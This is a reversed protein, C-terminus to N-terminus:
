FLKLLFLLVAFNTSLRCFRFFSREIDTGFSSLNKKISNLSFNSLFTCEAGEKLPFSFGINLFIPSSLKANEILPNATIFIDEYTMSYHTILEIM